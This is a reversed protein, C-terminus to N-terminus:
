ALYGAGRSESAAKGAGHLRSRAGPYADNRHRYWPQRDRIEDAADGVVPDGRRGPAQLSDGQRWANRCGGDGDDARYARRRNTYGPECIRFRRVGGLPHCRHARVGADRFDSRRDDAHLDARSRGEGRSGQLVAAFRNVEAHLERYSYAREQGTETSIYVLANQDGRTALHRDLANHCLNTLGGVFWKAFPPRSYDLVRDFPRHWHILRAQEAWFAEREVMSRRYFEAYRQRM